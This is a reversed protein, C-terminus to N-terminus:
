DNLKASIVAIVEIEITIGEIPSLAQVTVRTPEFGVKFFERYVQDMKNFENVDKMFITVRVVNDMSTGSSELLFKVNQLAKRTQQEITGPIIDGTKLDCSLQSSLFLLGGTKVIHNFPSKPRKIGDITIIEKQM